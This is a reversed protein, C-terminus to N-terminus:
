AARRVLELGGNRVRIPHSGKARKTTHRNIRLSTSAAHKTQEAQVGMVSVDACDGPVENTAVGRTVGTGLAAAAVVGDLSGAAKGTNGSSAATTAASSAAPIRTVSM